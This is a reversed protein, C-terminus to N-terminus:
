QPMVNGESDTVLKGKSMDLLVLETGWPDQVVVCRGIPIDFPQVVIKGGSAEIRAAADDASEVLLDVELGKRQTQLVIEADTNPMRLGVADEARWIIEHGLEDKYFSLGEDLDPVNIRICDIKQFLTKSSAKM